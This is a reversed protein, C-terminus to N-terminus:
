RLFRRVVRWYWALAADFPQLADPLPFNRADM